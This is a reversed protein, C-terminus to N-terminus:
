RQLNIFVHTSKEAFFSVTTNNFVTKSKFDGNLSLSNPEIDRDGSGRVLIRGICLFQDDSFSGINGTKKDIRYARYALDKTRNPFVVMYAVANEYVNARIRNSNVVVYATRLSLKEKSEFGRPFILDIVIWAIFITSVACIALASFRKM